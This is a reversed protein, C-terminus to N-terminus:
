EVEEVYTLLFAKMVYGVEGNSDKVKYWLDNVNEDIVELIEGDKLYRILNFSIDPSKRFNLEGGHVKGKTVTKKVVAIEEAKKEEKEFRNAKINM